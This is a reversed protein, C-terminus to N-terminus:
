CWLRVPIFHRGPYFGPEVRRQGLNAQMARDALLGAAALTPRSKPKHGFDLPARTREAPSILPDMAALRM